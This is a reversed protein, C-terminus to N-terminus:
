FTDIITVQDAAGHPQVNQVWIKNDHQTLTLGFSSKEDQIHFICSIVVRLHVIRLLLSILMVKTLILTIPADQVALSGRRPM